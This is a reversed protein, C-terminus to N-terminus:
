EGTLRRWLSSSLKPDIYPRLERWHPFSAEFMVPAMRADKAPYLAGGYELVSRDLKELLKLTREGRMPFDLALTLGPRPFSLMGPSKVAGFKKLVALFSGMGHTSIVSLMNELVDAAEEPVVCQYQVFGGKGYILNWDLVSDLPYFFPDYPVVSKRPKLSSVTYYATNFLKITVSNLAWEPFAFPVRPSRKQKQKHFGSGHNGRMFIGRAHKGALCDVWAVTYEARADSEASISLFEKMSHFPITELEIHDGIVPKLQIEANLIVGTLGLGGVTAQFLDENFAPGCQVLGADSRCLLLDTVHAGFCGARHHNKGHVDNAIAGGLTVFKTGPTVPLFWGAPVIYKLLEALSIGAECRIRGTEKDFALIRDLHSCDLLSRGDNLCSDGYSRGLGYPLCGGEPVSNLVSQVQDTWYAKYVSAHAVRPFRGWSCYEGAGGFPTAAEHHAAASSSM